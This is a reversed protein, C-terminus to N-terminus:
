QHKTQSSNKTYINSLQEHDTSDDKQIENQAEKILKIIKKTQRRSYNKRLIDQITSNNYNAIKKLFLIEM